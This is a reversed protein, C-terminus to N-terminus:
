RRRCHRVLEWKCTREAHDDVGDPSSGVSALSALDQPHFTSPADSYHATAVLIPFPLPVFLLVGGNSDLSGISAPFLLSSCLSEVIEHVFIIEHALLSPVDEASQFNHAATGM